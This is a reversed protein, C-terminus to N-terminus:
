KTYSTFFLAFGCDYCYIRIKENRAQGDIGFSDTLGYGGCISM